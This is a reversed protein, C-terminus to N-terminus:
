VASTVTPVPQLIPMLEFGSVVLEWTEGKRRKALKGEFVVLQGPEMESAAEAKKGWAECPILTLHERGDQGVEGLVLTFSACPAGSTAYRVEVGQRGIAGLLICRNVSGRM